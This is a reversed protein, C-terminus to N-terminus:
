YYRIQFGRQDGRYERWDVDIGDIRAGPPGIYCHKIAQEIDDRNGEFLAEVSGDPLNRVWGALGLQSAIDRTFARYFVGQVGGRIILHAATLQMSHNYCFSAELAIFACRNAVPGQCEGPFRTIYVYMM